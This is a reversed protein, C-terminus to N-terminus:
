SIRKVTSCDGLVNHTESLVVKAASCSLGEESFRNIIETVLERIKEGDLIEGNNMQVSQFKM